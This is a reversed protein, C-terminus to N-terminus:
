SVFQGRAAFDFRGLGVFGSKELGYLFEGKKFAHDSGGGLVELVFGNGVPMKPGFEDEVSADSTLNEIQRIIPKYIGDTRFIAVSDTWTILPNPIITFKTDGLAPSIQSKLPNSYGLALFQGQVAANFAGAFSVPVMVAFERAMMNLPLGSDDQFGYMQSVLQQIMASAAAPTPATTSGVGVSTGLQTALAGLSLTISNNLATPGITHSSSFLPQADYCAIQATRSVGVPGPITITTSTGGNIVASILQADYFMGREVQGAIQIRLQGTKDRRLDKKKVAITLEFDRNTVSVSFENFSKAIKEGIWERVSPALGLGAYTETNQNSEMTIALMNIWQVVATDEEMAVFYMGIVKRQTIQRFQEAQDAM